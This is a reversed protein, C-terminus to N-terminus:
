KNLRRIKILAIEHEFALEQRRDLGAEILVREGLRAEKSVRAVKVAETEESM